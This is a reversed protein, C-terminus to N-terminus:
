QLLQTVPTYLLSFLRGAERGDKGYGADMGVAQLRIGFSGCTRINLCPVSIRESGGWLQADKSLFAHYGLM